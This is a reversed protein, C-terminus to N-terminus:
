VEGSYLDGSYRIETDGQFESITVSIAVKQNITAVATGFEVEDITIISIINGM